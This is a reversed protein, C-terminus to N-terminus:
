RRDRTSGYLTISHEYAHSATVGGFAFLSANLYNTELSRMQVNSINISMAQSSGLSMTVYPGSADGPVNM